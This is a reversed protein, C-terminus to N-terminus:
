NGVTRAAGFMPLLMAIAVFGIVSGMILIMLPEIFRSGTKIAEEYEAEIYDALRTFVLGLRGSRDGSDIMQSVSEPILSSQLLPTAIRQGNEVEHEVSAWLREYWTNTSMTRVLLLTESLPVGAETLTGIARFARSQYLKHFIGSLVPVRLLLWDFTARGGATGIWAFLGLGLLGTGLVLYVSNDLMFSSTSMLLRTPGPLLAGKTTYIAEFRPLIVTLLFITVAACMAFLFAPYMMAGRFQRMAQQDKMLYSAARTLILSLTGSAESARIMTTVASPFTRPYDDMADSLPRGENISECVGTLVQKMLPQKTQRALCELAEGLVIGTEIMISLQNIFWMVETRRVHIRSGSRRRQREVGSAPDAPGLKIIFRNADSLKQGAEEISQASIIGSMLTGTETRAEYAFNPM